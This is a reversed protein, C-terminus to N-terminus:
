ERKTLDNNYTESASKTSRAQFRNGRSFRFKQVAEPLEGDSAFQVNEDDVEEERGKRVGRVRRIVKRGSMHHSVNM